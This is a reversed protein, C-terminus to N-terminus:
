KKYSETAAVAIRIRDMDIDPPLTCDAGLYFSDNSMEDLIAHVAATIEAESGDVLVGSRDDLGGLLIKGPFLKKGETLSPNDAFIGWNVVTGPYGQFRELNVQEKCIHLVNFGELRTAAELIELELPRVLEAFESDTYMFREGGLAAYYIGDTGAEISAKTLELLYDAIYRFAQKMGEPNERYHKVLIQRNANYQDMGNIMHSACAVVGHITAVLVAEGAMADSIAKILEVQRKFYASDTNIPKVNSWDAATKLSLDQPILNENMIKCIDTKSERFFELHRKVAAEGFFAEKEFHLWFGSPIRDPKQGNLVAMVRERKNM